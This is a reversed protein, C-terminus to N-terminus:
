GRRASEWIERYARVMRDLGFRAAIRERCATQRASWARPEAMEAGAALIAGAFAAPDGIPVVWGTEGVILATDGANTAVVPTGCAMAEGVVNPFAEGRSSLLHLDLANMLAPVDERPGLLLLRGGLGHRAILRALDGNTAELGEGVLACRWDPAGAAPLRALAAFLNAHDKHPHWRAVMGLVLTGVGVGLQARVRQRAAPDPAWLALDFGNPVIEMRGARYGLAVHVRAAAESCSVIRRPLVGSCRACARVVLRTAASVAGPDLNANRIGWVVAGVGALRAALGGVLDAHYMWTQVVDPRQERLLRVLRLLGSAGFSGRRQGLARVPVGARELREGCPGAGRLSVVLHRDERDAAALRLLVSQAGGTDLSTILHLVNM